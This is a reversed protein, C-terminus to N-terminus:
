CSDHWAHRGARNKGAPGARRHANKGPVCGTIGAGPASSVAISAERGPDPVRPRLFFIKGRGQQNKEFRQVM